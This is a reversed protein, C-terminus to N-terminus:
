GAATAGGGFDDELDFVFSEDCDFETPEAPHLRTFEGGEVQMYGFCTAPANEGPNAPLHLGGGDWETISELEELVRDRTLDDGAADAATAFLLGASFAQVGLAAPEPKDGEVEEYAALYAQLAPSEDAEEFPVSNIQVIAGEAAPEVLLDPDYYQQGLDVVEPEFGQTAMDRLLKVVEQTASIMTVYQIDADIMERVESTYSEQIISTQKDYVFDFGAAEYAKKVRETQLDVAAIAGHIIAANQVAEPNQEAVWKAPGDTIRDSPNPVPAVLNDSLSKAASVAYAPVEILDCDVMAQAGSDDTVSGSGVIAFVGADCAERTAELHNFLESDIKLLELQRGNIGGFGNCFDVFAQMSEEISITPVRVQGARDSIVAIEIAEASVGPDAAEPEAPTDGEAGGEGEAPAPDDGEGEAEAEGCPVPLTGVMPGEDGESIGEGAGGDAPQAAGAGGGSGPGAGASLEDDSLRSGCAAAVLALTCLLAMSRTKM